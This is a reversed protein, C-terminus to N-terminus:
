HIFLYLFHPMYVRCLPINNLQSSSHHILSDINTNVIIIIIDDFQKRFHASPHFM